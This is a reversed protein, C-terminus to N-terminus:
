AVCKRRTLLSVTEEGPHLTLVRISNHHILPPYEYRNPMAPAAHLQDAVSAISSFLVVIESLVAVEYTKNETDSHGIVRAAETSRIPRRPSRSSFPLSDIEGDLWGEYEEYRRNRARLIQRTRTM